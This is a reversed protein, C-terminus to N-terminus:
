AGILRAADLHHQRCLRRIMAPTLDRKGNLVDHVCNLAGIAPVLDEPTLGDQEMMFHLYEAPAYSGEIPCEREEYASVLTAMADLWVAEDSGPAPDHTMLAEIEALARKHSSPDRIPYIERM